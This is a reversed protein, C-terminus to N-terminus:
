AVTGCKDVDCVLRLILKISPGIFSTELHRIKKNLVTETHGFYKANYNWEYIQPGQM